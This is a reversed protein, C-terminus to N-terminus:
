LEPWSVRAMRIDLQSRDPCYASRSSRLRGDPWVVFAHTSSGFAGNHEGMWDAYTFATRWVDWDSDPPWWTNYWWNLNVDNPPWVPDYHGPDRNAPLTGPYVPPFSETTIRFVQSGWTVTGDSAITGWRGYVDMLSNAPDDRRDFWAALLQQGDPKVTLVPAWQDNAVPNGDLSNLRQPAGLWTQGGDTSYTFFVDARDSGVGKDAFAVYVHGPKAPNVVLEPHRFVQFYDDTNGSNSRFLKLTAYDNSALQCITKPTSGLLNPNAGRNGVARIQLAWDHNPFQGSEQLWAVYAVHDPGVAATQMTAGYGALEQKSWNSASLNGDQAVMLYMKGNDGDLTRILLYVDHYYGVDAPWDDVAIWPYDSYEIDPRVTDCRVFTVGNDTSMWLPVGKNAGPRRESTGALYIIKSVRDIALVPDGADGWPLTDPPIVAPVPPQGQDSFTVGGDRSVAWGVMRNTGRDTGSKLEYIGQNTDWFAVVVTDGNAVVKPQWQTNQENAHDQRPDNVLINFRLDHTQRDNLADNPDTDSSAFLTEGSDLAGNGNPDELWDPLTDGDSDTPQDDACAVYHFGVDVRTHEERSRDNASTSHHYLGARAADAQSGADRLTCAAPLYRDGLPGTVYAPSTVLPTLDHPAPPTLRPSGSLYGNYDHDVGVSASVATADFFTDWVQFTHAEGPRFWAEGHWFTCNRVTLSVPDNHDTFSCNVGELLCNQLTLAMGTTGANLTDLTLEGGSFQCDTFRYIGVGPGTVTGSYAPATLRTFRCDVQSPPVVAGRSPYLIASRGDYDWPSGFQEQVSIYRTFVNLATPTGISVLRAGAGLKFGCSGYAALTVGNTLTVLSEAIALDSVAYDLVEYHYGLDPAGQSRAVLPAWVLEDSIANTWVTPPQTTGWSRLNGLLIGDIALTGVGRFSADAALYRSGGGVSQFPHNTALYQPASGFTPSNWFGNHTGVLTVTGRSVNTVNVLVSNTAALWNVNSASGANVLLDVHDATLHACVARFFDGDLVTGVNAALVNGLDLAQPQSASNGLASVGTGCKVMQVNRLRQAGAAVLGSFKVATQAHRFRLYELTAPGGAIELMPYGVQSTTADGTEVPEGVTADFKHTFFAPRYPGTRCNVSGVVSLRASESTDYKVVAGGEITLDKVNLSGTVFYTTDGALTISPTSLLRYDVVLGPTKDPEGALLPAGGARRFENGAAALQTRRPVPLEWGKTAPRLVGTRQTAALPTLPLEALTAAVAAYEVTELLFTRGEVIQWAKGVPVGKASLAKTGIEFATGPALATAEFRLWGDAEGDGRVPTPAEVFETLVVLRTSAPDLGFQEPRPPAARLIVDQEFRDLAVTYRVDAAVRDFVNAYLVQTVGVAAAVCDRSEALLVTRGSGTECYALGVPASRLRQGDSTVLDVAGPANLNPALRVQYATRRAAFGGNAESEFRAEAPVWVRGEGDWRNLGAALVHVRGAAPRDSSTMIAGPAEWIEQHASRGTPRWGAERFSRAATAAVAEGCVAFERPFLSLSLLGMLWLRLTM